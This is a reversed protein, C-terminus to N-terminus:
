NKKGIPVEVVFKVIKNKFLLFKLIPISIIIISISIIVQTLNLELLSKKILEIFEVM